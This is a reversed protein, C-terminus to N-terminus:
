FSSVVSVSVEINNLTEGAVLTHTTVFGGRIKM